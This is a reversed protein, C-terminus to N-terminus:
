CQFTIACHSSDNYHCECEHHTGREKRGTGCSLVLFLLLGLGLLGGRQLGDAHHGAAVCQAIHVAHGHRTLKVAEDVVANDPIRDHFLLQCASIRLIDRVKPDLADADKLYFSLAYDIRILNEITRYVISACFRKDLQSLNANRMREDLSLSAYADKRIVDEFIELAVRRSNSSPAEPAPKRDAYKRGPAPKRTGPRATGSHSFRQNNGAPRSFNKGNQPKFGTKKGDFNSKRDPKKEM